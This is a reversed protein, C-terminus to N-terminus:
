WVFGISKGFSSDCISVNSSDGPCLGTMAGSAQRVTRTWSSSPFVDQRVSSALGLNKRFIQQSGESIHYMLYVNVKLRQRLSSVTRFAHSEVILKAM